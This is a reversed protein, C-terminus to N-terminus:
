CIVVRKRLHRSEPLQISHDIKVTITASQPVANDCNVFPIISTSPKQSRALALSCRPALNFPFDWTEADARGVSILSRSRDDIVKVCRSDGYTMRWGSHCTKDRVIGYMGKWHWRFAAGPIRVDQVFPTAWFHRVSCRLYSKGPLDHFERYWGQIIVSVSLM